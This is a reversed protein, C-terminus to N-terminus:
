SPLESDKKPLFIYSLICLLMQATKFFNLFKFYLLCVASYYRCERMRQYCLKLKILFFAPLFHWKVGDSFLGKVVFAVTFVLLVFLINFHTKPVCTVINHYKTSVNKMATNLRDLEFEIKREENSFDKKASIRFASINYFPSVM